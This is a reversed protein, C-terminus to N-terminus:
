IYALSREALPGAYSTYIWQSDPFYAMGWTVWAELLKTKGIRPLMNLVLWQITGDADLEGFFALELVDCAHLHLDLIPLELMSEPVFLDRFYERFSLYDDAPDYAQSTPAPTAILEAPSPQAEGESM